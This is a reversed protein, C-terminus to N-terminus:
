ITIKKKTVKFDKLTDIEHWEYKSKLTSIKLIKKVVLLNLFETMSLKNRINRSISKYFVYMKKAARKKIKFIGMYQGNIDAYKKPKCGIEKLINNKNIKFTELDELPKSYREKWSKKWNANYPLCIDQKTNKLLLKIIKKDFIIDSYCIISDSKELINKAKFLSYVMNTKKWNKNIIKNIKYKKFLNKKYGLISTIKKLEFYKFNDLLHDFISKGNIKVLTKPKNRTLKNLRSGRGAALIVVNLNKM